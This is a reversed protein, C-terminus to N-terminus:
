KRGGHVVNIIYTTDVTFEGGGEGPVFLGGNFHLRHTGVPLPALMLYVGNSVSRGDGPAAGLINGAPVTFDFPPSITEYDASLFDIARGDLTAEARTIPFSRACANLEEDTSGFFPTGPELTSCEVNVIVVFLSVNSPVTIERTVTGPEAFVGPLFWVNGSQGEIADRFADSFPGTGAPISFVWQWFGASWEAYTNGRIQAQPPIVGPNANKAAAAPVMGVLGIMVVVLTLMMWRRGDIKM